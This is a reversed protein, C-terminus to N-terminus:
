PCVGNGELYVFGEVFPEFTSADAVCLLPNLAIYLYDLSPGGTQGVSALADISLVELPPNNNVYLYSGVSELSSADVSALAANDAVYFYSGVTRLAPVSLSEVSPNRNFFFTNTVTELLPLEITPLVAGAALTLSALSTCQVLLDLQAQTEIYGDRNPCPVGVLPPAGTHLDSDDAGSYGTPGGSTYRTGTDDTPDGDTEAAPDVRPAAKEAEPVSCASALVLLLHAM